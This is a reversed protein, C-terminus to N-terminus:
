RTKNMTPHNYRYYAWECIKFAKAAMMRGNAVRDILCTLIKQLKSYSM